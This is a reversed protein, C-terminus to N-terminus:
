RENGMLCVYQGAISRVPRSVLTCCRVARMYHGNVSEIYMCLSILRKSITLGHQVAARRKVGRICPVPDVISTM